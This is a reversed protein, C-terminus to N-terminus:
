WIFLPPYLLKQSKLLVMAEDWGLGHEHCLEIELPIGTRSEIAFVRIARPREKLAFWQDTLEKVFRQTNEGDQLYLDYPRSAKVAFLFWQSRYRKQGSLRTGPLKPARLLEIGMDQDEPPDVDMVWLSSM